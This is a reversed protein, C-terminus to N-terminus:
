DEVMLQLCDGCILNIIKSSRAINHCCPCVYRHNHTAIKTPTEIGGNAAANGGTIRIGHIENRNLKIEQIDNNLIWDLLEDSPTTTSYGYKDTREVTLGHSEACAKFHKNHYTGGRSCDQINAIESNYQHCMEHLMTSVTFEIPRNLTGAAINIEKYGEGKVSWADYLTYHGYSRSSSQITIVPRDLEGDFFDANLKDYLKELYCALRSYKTLEKLTTSGKM